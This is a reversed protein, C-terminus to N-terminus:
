FPSRLFQIVPAIFAAGGLDRFTWVLTADDYHGAVCLPSQVSGGPPIVASGFVQVFDGATYPIDVPGPLVPASVRASFSGITFPGSGQNTIRLTYVWTKLAITSGACGPTVGFFGVPNPTITFTLNPPGATSGVVVIVENSPAVGCGNTATVRVYYTGNPVAAQISTASGMPVTALDAGGPTSGAILTFTFPGTGSTPGTWALTVIGANV